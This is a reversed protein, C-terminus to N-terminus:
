AHSRPSERRCQSVIDPATVSNRRCTTFCLAIGKTRELSLRGAKAHAGNSVADARLACVARRYAASIRLAPSRSHVISSISASIAAERLSRAASVPRCHEIRDYVRVHDHRRQERSAVVRGSDPYHRVRQRRRRNGHEFEARKCTGIFAVLVFTQLNHFWSLIM